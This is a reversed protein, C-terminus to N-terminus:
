KAEEDTIELLGRGTVKNKQLIDAPGEGIEKSVVTFLEECNLKAIDM